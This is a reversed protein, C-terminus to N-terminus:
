MLTTGEKRKGDRDPVVTWALVVFVGNRKDKSLGPVFGSAKFLVSM